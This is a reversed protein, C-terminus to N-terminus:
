DGSQIHKSVSMPLQMILWDAMRREDSLITDCMRVTEMDGMIRATEQIATYMAIELHEAAYSTQLNKVLSDDMMSTGVGALSASMKSVVDKATSVSGGNREVSDQVLQAHRKTEEVHEKLREQIIPETDTEGIQKELTTILGMEMAHANKLWAMYTDNKEHM